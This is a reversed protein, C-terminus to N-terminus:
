FKVTKPKKTGPKIVFGDAKKKAKKKPKDKKNSKNHKM